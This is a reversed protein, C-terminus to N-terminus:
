RTAREVIKPNIKRLSNTAERRVDVDPDNLLLRLAPVAPLANTGMHRICRAVAYRLRAPSEQNTLAAVLPPLGAPGLFALIHAACEGGEPAQPDSLIEALDGVAGQAKPGLAILACTAGRARSLKKADTPKRTPALLRNTRNVTAHQKTWSPREYRIWNLLYPIGNTGIHLIAKDIENPESVGTEYALVWKSLSKGEYEPERERGCVRVLVAVPVAISLILFVRRKRM